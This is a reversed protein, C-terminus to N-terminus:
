DQHTSPGSSEQQGRRGDALGSVASLCFAEIQDCTREAAGRAAALKVRTTEELGTTGARLLERLRAHLGASETVELAGIEELFLVDSRVNGHYKGVLTRAGALVPEFVNHGGIGPILTGGVIALDAALYLGALEGMTDVVVVSGAEGGRFRSLCVPDLGANQLDATADALREKHRPAIVLRLRGDFDRQLSAIAAGILAEEGPHTSGAVVVQVEPGFGLDARVSARDQGSGPEVDLKLNGTVVIREAAVGLARLRGAYAEAQVAYLNVLPFGVWRWVPGLAYRRASREGIRGNAVAVRVGRAAACALLNPWLELEVLILAVPDVRNMVRRVVPGLDLPSLFCELAPLLRRAVALGSTTMSSLLVDFEPRRRQLTQVLAAVAVMEGASAAHIWIRPRNPRRSSPLRLSLRQSFGTRYRERIAARFLLYPSALLLGLLFLLDYLALLLRPPPQDDSSAGVATGM